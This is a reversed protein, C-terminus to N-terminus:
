GVHPFVMSLIPLILSSKTLILLLTAYCLLKGSGTHLCIFVNEGEIFHEKHNKTPELYGLRTFVEMVAQRIIPKLLCVQLRPVKMDVYSPQRERTLIIYNNLLSWDSKARGNKHLSIAESGLFNVYSVLSERLARMSPTIQPSSQSLNKLRGTYLRGCAHHILHLTTEYGITHEAM